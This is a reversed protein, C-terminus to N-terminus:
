ELRGLYNEKLGHAEDFIIILIAQYLKEVVMKLMSSRKYKSIMIQLPSKIENVKITIDIIIVRVIVLANM